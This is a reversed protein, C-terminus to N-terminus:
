RKFHDAGCILCRYIDNDKKSFNNKEGCRACISNIIEKGYEDIEKSIRLLYLTDPQKEYEYEKLSHTENLVNEIKNLIETRRTYFANKNEHKAQLPTVLFGM